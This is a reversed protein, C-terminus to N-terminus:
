GCRLFKFSSRPIPFAPQLCKWSYWELADENYRLSPYDSPYDALIKFM